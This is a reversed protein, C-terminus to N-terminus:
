LTVTIEGSYLAGVLKRTISVSKYRNKLMVLAKQLSEISRNVFTIIRTKTDQFRQTAVHYGRNHYSKYLKKTATSNGM